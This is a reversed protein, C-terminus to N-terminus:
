AEERGAILQPFPAPELHRLDYAIQRSVLYTIQIETHTSKTWICQPLDRPWYSQGSSRVCLLAAYIQQGGSYSALGVGQM